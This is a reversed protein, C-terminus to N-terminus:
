MRSAATRLARPNGSVSSTVAVCSFFINPEFLNPTEIKEALYSVPRAARGAARWVTPLLTAPGSVMLLRDYPPRRAETWETSQPLCILIM